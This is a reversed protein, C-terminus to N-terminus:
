PDEVQSAFLRLVGPCVGLLLEAECAPSVSPVVRHRARYQELQDQDAVMVQAAVMAEELTACPGSRVIPYLIRNEVEWQDDRLRAEFCTHKVSGDPNRDLQWPSLSGSKPDPPRKRIMPDMGSALDRISRLFNPVDGVLRPVLVSRELTGTPMLGALLASLGLVRAQVEAKEKVTKGGDLRDPIMWQDEAYFTPSGGNTYLVNASMMWQVATGTRHRHTPPGEPSLLFLYVDGDDEFEETGSDHPQTGDTNTLLWELAAADRPRVLRAGDPWRCFEWVALSM